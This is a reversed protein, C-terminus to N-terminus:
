PFHEGSRGYTDPVVYDDESSSTSGLFDIQRSRYAYSSSSNSMWPIIGHTDTLSPREFGQFTGRSLFGDSEQTERKRSTSSNQETGNQEREPDSDITRDAIASLSAYEAEWENPVGSGDRSHLTSSDGRSVYFTSDTTPSSMQAASTPVTFTEFRDSCSTLYLAIVALVVFFAVIGGLVSALMVALGSGRSGELTSLDLCARLLTGNVEMRIAAPHSHEASASIRGTPHLQFDSVDTTTANEFGAESGAKAEHVFIKGANRCTIRNGDKFRSDEENGKMGFVSVTSRFCEGKPNSKVLGLDQTGDGGWQLTEVYLTPGQLTETPLDRDCTEHREAATFIEVGANVGTNRGPEGRCIELLPPDPSLSRVQGGFCNIGVRYDDFLSNNSDSEKQTSSAASLRPVAVRAAAGCEAGMALVLFLDQSAATRVDGMPDGDGESTQLNRSDSGSSAAITDAAAGYFRALSDKIEKGSSLSQQTRRVCSQVVLVLSRLLDLRSFDEHQVIGACTDIVRVAQFPNRMRSSSIKKLGDVATEFDGPSVSPLATLQVVFGLFAVEDMQTLSRAMSGAVDDADAPSSLTSTTMSDRVHIEVDEDKSELLVTGTPDYM